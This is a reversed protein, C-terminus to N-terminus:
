CSKKEMGGPLVDGGFMGVKFVLSALCAPKGGPGCQQRIVKRMMDSGSPEKGDNLCPLATGHERRSLFPEASHCQDTCLPASGPLVPAFAPPSRCPASHDFDGMPYFPLLTVLEWHKLKPCPHLCQPHLMLPPLAAIALPLLLRSGCVLVQM